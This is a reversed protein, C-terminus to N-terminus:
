STSTRTRRAARRVPGQGRQPVDATGRRLHGHLPLGVGAEQRAPYSQLDHLGAHQREEGLQGRLLGQVAPQLAQDPQHHSVDASRLRAVGPLAAAAGDRRHGHRRHLEQHHGAAGRALDEGRRPGPERLAAPQGAGQLPDGPDARAAQGREGRRIEPSAAARGEAFGMQPVAAGEGAQGSAETSM